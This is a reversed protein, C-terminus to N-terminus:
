LNGHADSPRSEEFITTVPCLTNGARLFKKASQELQALHHRLLLDLVRDPSLYQDFSTVEALYRANLSARKLPSYHRYIQLFRKNRKLVGEREDHSATGGIHRDNAFVAEVVHLAKYFATIALWPSHVRVDALLHRMTEHTRNACALHEVESAM